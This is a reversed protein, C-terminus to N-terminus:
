RELIEIEVRRNIKGEEVNNTVILPKQDGWGKTEIRKDKIGQSVLYSKASEVRQESLTLNKKSSGRKDTHGELLIRMNPNKKMVAVLKDLETAAAPLIDSKGLNFILNKLVFKDNNKILSELEDEETDGSTNNTNTNTSVSVQLKIPTSSSNNSTNEADPSNSSGTSLSIATSTKGDYVISESVSTNCNSWTVKYTGHQSVPISEKNDYNLKAGDKFWEIKNLDGYCGQKLLSSQLYNSSGKKDVRLSVKQEPDPNGVKLVAFAYEKECRPRNENNKCSYQLSNGMTIYYIGDEKPAYFKLKSKKKSFTYGHYSKVCTSVYGHIGWYVQVICDPCYNEAKDSQVYTTIKIKEGKKVELYTTAKGNITTESFTFNRDAYKMKKVKPPSTFNCQAWLSQSSSFLILLSILLSKKMLM